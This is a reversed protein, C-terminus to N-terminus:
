LVQGHKAEEQEDRLCTADDTRDVRHQVGPRALPCDRPRDREDGDSGDRDREVEDESSRAEVTIDIGNALHLRLHAFGDCVPVLRHERMGGRQGRLALRDPLDRPTETSHGEGLAVM